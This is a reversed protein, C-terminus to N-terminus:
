RHSADAGNLIEGIRDHVQGVGRRNRTVVQVDVGASVGAVPLPFSSEDKTEIAVWPSGEALEEGIATLLLRLYPSTVRSRDILLESSLEIITDM